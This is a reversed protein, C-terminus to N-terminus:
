GALNWLSFVSTYHFRMFTPMYCWLEGEGRVELDLTADTRTVRSSCKEDARRIVSTCEGSELVSSIVFMYVDM